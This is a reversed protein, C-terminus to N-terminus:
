GLLARVVVSVLAGAVGVLLAGVLAVVIPAWAPVAVPERRSRDPDVIGLWELFTRMDGADAMVVPVSAGFRHLRTRLDVDHCPCVPFTDKRRQGRCSASGAGM